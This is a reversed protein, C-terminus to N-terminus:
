LCVEPKKVQSKKKRDMAHALMGVSWFMSGCTNKHSNEGDHLIEPVFQIMVASLDHKSLFSPTQLFVRCAASQRTRAIRLPPGNPRHM